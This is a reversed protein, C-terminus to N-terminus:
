ATQNILTGVTSSGSSKLSEIFSNIDDETLTGSKQEDLLDLLQSKIDNSSDAQMDDPPPGSPKEPPKFGAKDMIEKFDKSPKIGAEKIEDMMAKMTDGTTSDPDYKSLIDQLKQKQEDTM